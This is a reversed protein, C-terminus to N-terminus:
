GDGTVVHLLPVVPFDLCGGRWVGLGEGKGKDAAIAERGERPM